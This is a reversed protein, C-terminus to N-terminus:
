YVSSLPYVLYDNAHLLWFNARQLGGVLYGAFGANSTFARNTKIFPVYQSELDL